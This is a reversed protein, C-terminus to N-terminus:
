LEYRYDSQGIGHTATMSERTKSLSIWRRYRTLCCCYRLRQKMGITHCRGCCLTHCLDCGNLLAIRIKM